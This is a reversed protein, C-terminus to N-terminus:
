ATILNSSINLLTPHFDYITATSAGGIGVCHGHNLAPSMRVHVVGIVTASGHVGRCCIGFNLTM